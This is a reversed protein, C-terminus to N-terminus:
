KKWNEVIKEQFDKLFSVLIVYCVSSGQACEGRIEDKDNQGKYYCTKACEFCAVQIFVM